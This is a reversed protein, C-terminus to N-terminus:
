FRYYIFPNFGSNILWITALSLLFLFLPFVIIKKTPNLNAMKYSFNNFYLENKRNYGIFSFLIGISMLAVNKISISISLEFSCFSFMKNLYAISTDLDMSFFVWGILVIFFTYTRQFLVPIKKLLSSLFIRELILFLGHYLGWIIFNWNAGHWFGSVFFVFVLNFYLKKPSVKNGGLPIYLYDRMWSGLTIHWRKWFESISKSLYPFNFNEPFHFGIMLGLGIAMESYGAFDFYIQFTYAIAGIWTEIVSTNELGLNNVQSVVSAFTNAIFVKKSLGIIFRYLGNLKQDFLNNRFEKIQLNIDKYRVIPGAILQPFMIIYLLYDLFSTLRKNEGRYVDIAYSIKQFTFFSIGIPLLVEEFSLENIYNSVSSLNSIFFNVYKFYCLLGINLFLSFLLSIKRKPNEVNFNKSILFDLLSSGLLFFIFTPAGWGYFLLSFLVIVEKKFSKPILYYIALFCPLFFCLFIVSSFVM